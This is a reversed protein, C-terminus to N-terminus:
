PSGEPFPQSPHLLGTAMARAAWAASGPPVLSPATAGLAFSGQIAAMLAAAAAAPDACRFAGCAVGRDIAARLLAVVSALEEEWAVRVEPHRLAEASMLVWCAVAKPDAQPGLRLHADLFAAVQEIPRERADLVARLQQRHAGVLQRLAEVLIDLKRDFHYHLLGPTLGAAAAIDAVSTGDYGGIAM